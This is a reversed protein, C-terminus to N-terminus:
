KFRWIWYHTYIKFFKLYVFKTHPNFCKSFFHKHRNVLDTHLASLITKRKRKTHYNVAEFIHVFTQTLFVNNEIDIEYVWLNISSTADLFLHTFKVQVTRGNRGSGVGFLQRAEGLALARWFHARSSAFWLLLAARLSRGAYEGSREQGRRIGTIFRKWPTQISSAAIPLPSKFNATKM